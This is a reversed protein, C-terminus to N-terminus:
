TLPTDGTCDRFGWGKSFYLRAPYHKRCSLRVGIIVVRRPCMVLHSLSATTKDVHALKIKVLVSRYPEVHGSGNSVIKVLGILNAPSPTSVLYQHLRYRGGRGGQVVSRHMKVGSLM